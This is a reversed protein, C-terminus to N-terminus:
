SRVIHLRLALSNCIEVLRAGADELSIDARRDIRERYFSFILHVDDIKHL